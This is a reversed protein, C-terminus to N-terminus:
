TRPLGANKVPMITLDLNSTKALEDTLTEDLYRGFILAGRPPGEKNSTLIPGANFLLLDSPLHVIGGRTEDSGNFTVTNNDIFTAALLPPTDTFEQKNLDYMRVSVIKGSNDLVAFLNTKLTSFTSSVLNSKEYNANRDIVYQYTDDWESWDLVTKAMESSYSSLLRDVRTLNSEVTDKELKDFNSRIILIAVLSLIVTLFIGTVTFVYAM